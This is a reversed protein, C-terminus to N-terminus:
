KTKQNEVGGFRQTLGSFMLMGFHFIDNLVIQCKLAPGWAMKVCAPVYVQFSLLFNTRPIDELGIKCKSSSLCSKKFSDLCNWAGSKLLKWHVWGKQYPHWSDDEICLLARIAYVEWGSVRVQKGEKKMIMPHHPFFFGGPQGTLASRHNSQTVTIRNRGLKLDKPKQVDGKRWSVIQKGLFPGPFFHEGHGAKWSNPLLLSSCYKLALRFNLFIFVPAFGLFAASDREFPLWKERM